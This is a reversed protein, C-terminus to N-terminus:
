CVDSKSIVQATISSAPQPLYVNVYGLLGLGAVVTQIPYRKKPPPNLIPYQTDWFCRGGGISARPSSISIRKYGIWNGQFTHFQQSTSPRLYNTIKSCLFWNAKLLLTWNHIKQAFLVAQQSRGQLAEATGWITVFFGGVEGHQLFQNCSNNPLFSARHSSAWDLWFHPDRPQWDPVTARAVEGGAFTFVVFM